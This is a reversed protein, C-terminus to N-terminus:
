DPPRNGEVVITQPVLAITVLVNYVFAHAADLLNDQVIVRVETLGERQIVEAPMTDDLPTVGGLLYWTRWQRRVQTTEDATALYVDPGYPAAVEVHCCGGLGTALAALLLWGLAKV